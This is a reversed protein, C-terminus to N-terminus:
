GDKAPKKLVGALILNIAVGALAILGAYIAGSPPDQFGALFPSDPLALGWATAAVTVAAVEPYPPRANKGTRQHYANWTLAAATVVLIGFAIWRPALFQNPNPARRTPKAVAESVIAVFATYASVLGVPVSKALLSTLSPPQTADQAEETALGADNKTPARLNRAAGYAAM